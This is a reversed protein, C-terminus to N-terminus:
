MSGRVCKDSASPRAAPPKSVSVSMGRNRGKVVTPTRVHGNNMTRHYIRSGMAQFAEAQCIKIIHKGPATTRYDHYYSVVGHVDARSGVVHYNDHIWIAGPDEFYVIEQARHYLANRKETDVERM